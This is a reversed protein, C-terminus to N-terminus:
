RAANVIPILYQALAPRMGAEVGQVVLYTIPVFYGFNFVFIGIMVAVFPLEKFPQIIQDKTATKVRPPSHAKVTFSAVILLLLILFASIRMAWGFGIKDILRNVM